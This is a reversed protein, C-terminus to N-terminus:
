ISQSPHVPPPERFINRLGDVTLVAQIVVCGCLTATTIWWWPAQPVNLLFSSMGSQTVMLAHKIFQWALVVFTLFVAIDGISDLVACARPSWSTGLSRVTLFKRRALCLPFFASIAIAYNYKNLDTVGRIPLNLVARSTVDVVISIAILLIALGGLMAIWTAASQLPSGASEYEDM